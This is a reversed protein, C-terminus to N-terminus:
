PGLQKMVINKVGGKTAYTAIGLPPMPDMEWRLSVKRGAIKVDVIQEDDVWAAITEPTVRLRIKYWKGEKFAM